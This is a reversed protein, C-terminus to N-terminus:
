FFMLKDNFVHVSNKVHHDTFAQSMRANEALGWAMAFRVQEQL